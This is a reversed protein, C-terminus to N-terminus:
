TSNDGFICFVIVSLIRYWRFSTGVCRSISADPFASRGGEVGKVPVAISEGQTVVEEFVFKGWIVLFFRCQNGRAVIRYLRLRGSGCWVGM